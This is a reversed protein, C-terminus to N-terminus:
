ESAKRLGEYVRANLQEFQQNLRTREDVDGSHVVIDTYLRSNSRMRRRIESATAAIHDNEDVATRGLEILSRLGPNATSPGHKQLIDVIQQLSDVADRLAERGDAIEAAM